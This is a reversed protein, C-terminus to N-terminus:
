ELTSRADELVALFYFSKSDINISIAAESIPSFFFLSNAKLKVSAHQLQKGQVKGKIWYLLM